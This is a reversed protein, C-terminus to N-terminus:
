YAVGVAIFISYVWNLNFEKLILYLFAAAIVISFLMMLNILGVTYDSVDIINQSIFKLTNSIAPQCNTFLVHEGYPYNM